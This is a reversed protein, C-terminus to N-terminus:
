ILRYVGFYEFQNINTMVEYEVLYLIGKLAEDLLLKFSEDTYVHIHEKRDLSEQLRDDTKHNAVEKSVNNVFDLYDEKIPNNDNTNYIEILKDLETAIRYKDFTFRKDPCSIVLLGGVKLVRRCEKILAIPNKIHEIVHNMVLLDFSSDQFPLPENHISCIHDVKVLGRCEHFINQLEETNACDLYEVTNSSDFTAPSNLAGIELCKLGHITQYFQNRWFAM